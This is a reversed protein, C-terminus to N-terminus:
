SMAAEEFPFTLSMALPSRKASPQGEGGKVRELAQQACEEVGHAAICDSALLDDWNEANTQM